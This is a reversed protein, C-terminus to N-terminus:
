FKNKNKTYFDLVKYFLNRIDNNCGCNTRYYSIDKIYKKYLIFISDMDTKSLQGRIQIVEEFKEKDEQSYM